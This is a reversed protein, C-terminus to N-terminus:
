TAFRTYAFPSEALYLPSGYAERLKTAYSEWVGSPSHDPRGYRCKNKVINTLRCFSQIQSKQCLFTAFHVDSYCLSCRFIASRENQFYSNLVTTGNERDWIVLSLGSLRRKSASLLFQQTRTRQSAHGHRDVNVSISPLVCMSALMIWREFSLFRLAGTMAFTAFQANSMENVLFLAKILYTAM